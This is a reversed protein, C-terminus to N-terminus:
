RGAQRAAAAVWKSFNKYGEDAVWNYVKFLDDLDPEKTGKLYPAASASIPDNLPADKWGSDYKIMPWMQNSDARSGYGLFRFPNPGQKDREGDRNKLGHIRVGFVGMGEEISKFIEYGVWRRTYTETGILVCTVSQGKLGRNILRKVVANGEKKAKEELSGDFFGAATREKTVWHNRVQQARWVDRQYHFSFFVRRVVPQGYLIASLFDVM